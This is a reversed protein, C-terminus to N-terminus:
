WERLIIMGAAADKRAQAHVYMGVSHWLATGRRFPGKSSAHITRMENNEKGFPM